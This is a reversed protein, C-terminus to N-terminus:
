GNVKSLSKRAFDPQHDLFCLYMYSISIIHIYSVYFNIFYNFSIGVFFPTFCILTDVM